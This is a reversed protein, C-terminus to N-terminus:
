HLKRRRLLAALGLPGLLLWGLAAGGSGGSSGGGGSSTVTITRTVAASVAGKTDKVTLKATYTGATTYSHSTSATGSASLAQDTV